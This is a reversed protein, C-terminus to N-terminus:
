AAILGHAGNADLFVAANKAYAAYPSNKAYDPVAGLKRVAAGTKWAALAHCRCLGGGNKGPTHARFNATKESRYLIGYSGRSALMLCFACAGPEAVRTWGSSLPDRLANGTMTDNYAGMTRLQAGQDMAEQAWAAIDPTADPDFSSLMWGVFAETGAGRNVIKPVFGDNGVAQLRATSYNEAALGTAWAQYQDFRPELYAHAWAYLASRAASQANEDGAARGQGSATLLLLTLAQGDKATLDAIGSRTLSLLKIPDAPQAM